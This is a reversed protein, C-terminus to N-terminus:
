VIWREYDPSVEALEANGREAAFKANSLERQLNSLATRADALETHLRSKEAAMERVTQESAGLQAKVRDMELAAQAVNQRATEATTQLHKVQSEKEAVVATDHVIRQQLKEAETRLLEIEAKLSDYNQQAEVAELAKASLGHLYRASSVAEWPAIDLQSSDSEPESSSSVATHLVRMAARICARKLPSEMTPPIADGIGSVKDLLEELLVNALAGIAIENMSSQALREPSRCTPRARDDDSGNADGDGHDHEEWDEKKDSGRARPDRQDKLRQRAHMQRMERQLDRLQEEYSERIGNLQQEKIQLLEKLKVLQTSSEGLM